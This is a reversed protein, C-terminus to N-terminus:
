KIEKFVKIPELEKALYLKNNTGLYKQNKKISFEKNVDRAIIKGNKSLLLGILLFDVEDSLIVSSKEILSLINDLKPALVLSNIGTYRGIHKTIIVTQIGKSSTMSVFSKVQAVTWGLMSISHMSFGSNNDPFILVYPRDIDFKKFQKFEKFVNSLKLNRLQPTYNINWDLCSNEFLQKSLASRRKFENKGNSNKIYLYNNLCNFYTHNSKDLFIPIPYKIAQEKNILSNCNGLGNINILQSFQEQGNFTIDKQPHLKNLAEFYSLSFYTEFLGGFNVIVIERDDIARKWNNIDLKPIILNSRLKWIIGPCYPFIRSTTKVNSSKSRM